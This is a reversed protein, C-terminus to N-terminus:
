YTVARPLGKAFEIWAAVQSETPTRRVLRKEENVEAMKKTLNDARRQALERVTDVGAAELLDSYEEGVGKVRFLDAMNVWRLILKPSIGTAVALDERGKSTGGSQLLDATTTLGADELTKAYAPGIGEIDILAYTRVRGPEDVDEDASQEVDAVLSAGTIDAMVPAASPQADGDGALVAATEGGPAPAEDGAATEAAQAVAESEEAAVAAAGAAEAGTWETSTDDGRVAYISMEDAMETQEADPYAEPWLAIECEMAATRRRVVFLYALAGGAALGLLALPLTIWLSRKSSRSKKMTWTGGADSSSRKTRAWEGVLRGISGM